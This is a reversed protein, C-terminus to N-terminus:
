IDFLFEYRVASLAIFISYIGRGVVFLLYSGALAKREIPTASKENIRNIEKIRYTFVPKPSNTMLVFCIFLHFHETQPYTYLGSFPSGNIAEGPVCNSSRGSSQVHGIQPTPFSLYKGAGGSTSRLFLRALFFRFQFVLMSM